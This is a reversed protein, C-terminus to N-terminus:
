GILILSTNQLAVLPGHISGPLLNRFVVQWTCLFREPVKTRRWGDCPMTRGLARKREKIQEKLSKVLEAAKAHATWCRPFTNMQGFDDADIVEESCRAACMFSDQLLMNLPVAQSQTYYPQRSVISNVTSQVSSSQLSNNLNIRFGDDTKFHTWPLM